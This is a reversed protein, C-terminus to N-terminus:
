FSQGCGNINNTVLELDGDMDLDHTIAGNSLTPTFSSWESTCDKFTLDGHNKFLYNTLPVSPLNKLSALYLSDRQGKTTFRSRRQRYSIFDQNTIDRFYGNTIFLDKWGDNNLDGFLPAWSWDTQSIGALQGIESFKNKSLGAQGLNLQLTNRTYQPQYGLQQSLDYIDQNTNLAMMQYRIPDAPMMDAVFVDPLGDNNFDAIDIGMGNHSQHDLQDGIQDKFTGNRQNIYLIDNSIFDNAVYIDPWGDKNLDEIAVGM